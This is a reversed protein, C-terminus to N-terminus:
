YICEIPKSTLNIAKLAVKLLIVTINTSSVLTGLSFWWGTVLLQCVKDCLTADLVGQCSRPEFECSYIYM